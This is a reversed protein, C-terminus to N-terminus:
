ARFWKCVSDTSVGFGRKALDKRIHGLRGSRFPPVLVNMDATQNLREHFGAAAERKPPKKRM